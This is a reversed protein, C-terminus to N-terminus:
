INLGGGRWRSSVPDYFFIIGENPQVTKNAGLLFRNAATSSASNDPFTINNTGVNVIFLMWAKTPNYPVLGSLTFNGTATLRLVIATEVGSVLLNDTNATITANVQYYGAIQPTFRYNTTSDFNNNTDFEETQFNIKTWTSTSSITQGSSQYASFAPGTGAINSPFSSQPSASTLVTGSTTPLTLVTTGAVAQEQLTCSGSTSGLLVISM